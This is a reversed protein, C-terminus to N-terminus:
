AFGSSIAWSVDANFSATADFTQVGGNSAAYLIDDYHRFYRTPYSWSRLSTGTTLGAQPCFTADEFFQKTGDNADLQLVFDYHRIYSGPTDVSEFSFCDSNGLGTRVTWSAEEKLATSSSSDVVQTNVTAGTHAIYRTTYGATTARMSISSDVTLAPGSVLSATEYGAAVINAQVSDETANSPYGSTLVGEYFTGQASNSNDGGIGLIISGEKYMTTYGSPRPGSYFTSLTGSAANGGRISWEDAEGKVVATVFRYSLSPDGTNVGASLGSFLGDELDAMIWPGSGAGSGWDTCNGYYIAEMHGAGTDTNSTEANGYDYCCADNYHTGDVVAYLGEPENGTAVGTTDDIRYGTGPSIFVGYAKQGGLTVPAGIASALNDYGDVDPGDWGGPPAQTLHNGNGSQDYIITILCTTNACFTDQAAADAVGGASLPVIEITTSDSGREVQYLSGSYASYLARTTSHAAVCPTDGAAYIDCPGASVLPAALAVLGLALHRRSFM